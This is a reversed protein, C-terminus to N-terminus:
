RGCRDIHMGDPRFLGMEAGPHAIHHVLKNHRRRTALKVLSPEGVALCAVQIMRSFYASGGCHLGCTVPPLRALPAQGQLRYLTEFEKMANIFTVM